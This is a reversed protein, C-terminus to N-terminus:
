QKRNGLFLLLCGIAALGFCFIIGDQREALLGINHMLHGGSEITTDFFLFYCGATMVGGITMVLGVIRYLSKM